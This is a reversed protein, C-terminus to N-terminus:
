FGNSKLRRKFSLVETGAGALCMLVAGVGTWLLIRKQKKANEESHDELKVQTIDKAEAALEEPTDTVQANIIINSLADAKRDSLLFGAITNMPIIEAVDEPVAAAESREPQMQDKKNDEGAPVQGSPSEPADKGQEKQGPQSSGEQPNGGSEPAQTVEVTQTMGVTETMGGFNATLSASGNGVIEYDITVNVLDSYGAVGSFSLNNIRMVNENTSSVRMYQSLSQILSIDDVRVQVTVTHSGLTSDLEPMDGIVPSGYLTVYICSVYKASASTLTETPSTQGFLLRFRNNSSMAEFNPGISEFEQSYGIWSDYLALMPRVSQCYNWCEDFSYGEIKTYDTVTETYTETVEDYVTETVTAMETRYETHTQIQMVTTMVPNGEEDFLPKGEEDTAQVETEVEEEVEYPVETEIETTVERPVQVTREKQVEKTGYHVKRHMAVNDFYYRTCFLSDRDFAAQIGNHDVVYFQLNYIDWFNINAYDLLDEVLFGYASDVVSTYETASGSQYYSYAQEYMPLAAELEGWFYTGAVAYDSFDMGWYGVAITLTDTVADAKAKEPPIIALGFTGILLVCLIMMIRSRRKRNKM